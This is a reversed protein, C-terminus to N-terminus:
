IQALLLSRNLIIQDRPVEESVAQNTVETAGTDGPEHGGQEGAGHIHDLRPVHVAGPPFVVVDEM